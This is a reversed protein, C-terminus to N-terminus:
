PRVSLVARLRIDKSSAGIMIRFDGTEIAPQLDKDLMTLLEPSINFSLERSQGPMLHVRQFGKLEIVPRAVSALEDRIYLQAVEDGDRTGSNRLTFQVVASQGATIIPPDVRLDSYEFSTYSIGHGFPFLPQGSLNCYDDGRGTPKHNYVLPLQGEAIPFTIPLRGAPNIDGFLADAVAAGGQEGSYWAVLIASVDELWRSMTVASGSVLVVITPKGLAAVRRILEEQKGPLNLFARDRFEGEEIGLALVTADCRRALDVAQQLQIEEGTPVGVNWILKIRANGAPEYYELRLRQPRGATFSVDTVITRASAKQWNDILLSDNLYLRYGDNGEVGLEYRGTVPVQLTGTWRVSYYDYTLRQPDPSFLTWEFNVSPDTRTFTPTGTLSINNFYEAKLGVRISDGDSYSFTTAPVAVYQTSHRGCGKAYLIDMTSGARKRIASLITTAQSVPASYGGMRASDAEPGIVALSRVSRSLPLTGGSNKLLVLSEQAARLALQKHQTTDSPPWMGHDAYPNEFLGLEFKARLVRAVASDIVTTGIRGDRFPPMFLSSHDISTQFIVDLGATLAKAAADAYDAATFHLVNAGGVAGADSIVFGRFGLDQKLLQNNLRDNASCPSGDFSNYSTMVSRAGGRRICAEFPPMHIERLLRESIQIPYSDRGGDGVNAIFHKPTTIVGLREFESVFAVGLESTLFPDEGYTEETRGWRVDTAINIVPSLVQRVGSGRCELATAHAVDHMLSTDFSAALGIAAPFITANRQVLGHLAEAIFIVPIGLRTQEVFHRQIANARAVIDVSDAEVAMQLGFVGDHFRAPDGDFEGALMFLQWFKEDPTMRSILDNVRTEIPAVPDRYLQAYCMPGILMLVGAVAVWSPLPRGGCNTYKLKM